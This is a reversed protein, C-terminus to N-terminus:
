DVSGAIPVASMFAGGKNRLAGRLSILTEDQM